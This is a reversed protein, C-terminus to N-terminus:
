HHFAIRSIVVISPTDVLALICGFTVNWIDRVLNAFYVNWVVQHRREGGCTVVKLPYFTNLLLEKYISRINFGVRNKMAAKHFTM